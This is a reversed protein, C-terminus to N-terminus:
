TRLKGEHEYMHVYMTSCLVPSAWILRFLQGCAYMYNANALEEMTLQKMTNKM